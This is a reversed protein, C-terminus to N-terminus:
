LYKKNHLFKKMLMLQVVNFITYGVLTVFSLFVVFGFVRKCEAGLENTKSSVSRSSEIVSNLKKLVKELAYVAPEIQAKLAVEKDFTNLKSEFKLFIRSGTNKNEGKFDKKMSPTIRVVIPEMDKNSFSFHKEEDSDIKASFFKKDQTESVIEVNFTLYTDSYAKLYGTSVNERELVFHLDLPSLNKFEFVESRAYFLFLCIIKM